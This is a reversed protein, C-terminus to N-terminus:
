RAKAEPCFANESGQEFSLFRWGFGFRGHPPDYGNAWDYRGLYILGARRVGKCPPRALCRKATVGVPDFGVCDHVGLLVYEGDVPAGNGDTEVVERKYLGLPGSDPGAGALPLSVVRGDAGRLLFSRHAVPWKTLRYDEKVSVL